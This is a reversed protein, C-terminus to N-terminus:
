GENFFQMHHKLGEDIQQKEKETLCFENKNYNLSLDDMFSKMKGALDENFPLGIRTYLERMQGVPDKELNEFKMEIFNEDPLYRLDKRITTTVKDLIGIAEAIGPCTGKRNLRNQELVIRWMNISSPIVDYPHRYIHIFRANPFMAALEKIRLSNFPNKSVIRKGHFFHLKRYYNLLATEWQKRKKESTPLFSSANSLFFGADNPFVLGELPSFDTIRFIAYEDEQPEDMGIRVNDMPRHKPLVMRFIPKYYARSCLFCEPEAVQFLTPTALNIDLNMLQHLLTTGTRWHGIIFIPDEPVPTAAIRKGYRRSEIFSFIATWFASQAIFLL